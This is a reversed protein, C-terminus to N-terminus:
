RISRRMRESSRLGAEDDVVADLLHPSAPPKATRRGAQEAAAWHRERAAMIRMLECEAVILSLWM